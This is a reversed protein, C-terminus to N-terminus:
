RSVQFTVTQNEAVPTGEQPSQSIIRWPHTLGGPDDMVDHGDPAMAAINLCIWFSDDDVIDELQRGVANPVPQPWGDATCDKQVDDNAHVPAAFTLAAAAICIAACTSSAIARGWATTTEGGDCTRAGYRSRRREGRGACGTARM